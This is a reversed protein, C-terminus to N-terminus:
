IKHHTQHAFTRYIYMYVYLVLKFNLLKLTGIIVDLRRLTM